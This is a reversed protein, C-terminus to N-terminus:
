RTPGATPAPSATPSARFSHRAGRGPPRLRPEGRHLVGRRARPRTGRGLPRRDDLRRLEGQRASAHRDPRRGRRLGPERDRPRAGPGGLAGPRHGEHVRRAAHDGARRAARPDPLAGSLPPRLLRDPRAADGDGAESLVIEGGPEEIASERYEIGGVVVDFMHIKRYARAIEGDPGVHLSTNCLKERGDRREVISGAVLDIRLERAIGRAWPRRGTSRRPARSTTARARRARQVERPARDPRRRRGGRRADLRDAAALNRDKDETSNLQVAAARM